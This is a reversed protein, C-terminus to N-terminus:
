IIVCVCVIIKNYEIWLVMSSTLFIDALCVAKCRYNWCTPLQPLLIALLVPSSRAM